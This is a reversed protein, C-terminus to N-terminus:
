HLVISLLNDATLAEIAEVDIMADLLQLLKM